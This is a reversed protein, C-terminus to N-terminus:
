VPQLVTSTLIQLTRETLGLHNPEATIATGAGDDMIQLLGRFVQQAASIGFFKTTFDTRFAPKVRLVPRIMEVYHSHPDPHVWGM